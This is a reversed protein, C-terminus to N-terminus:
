AAASTEPLCGFFSSSSIRAPSPLRRRGLQLELLRGPQAVFDLHEFAEALAALQVLVLLGLHEEDVRLLAEGAQLLDELEVRRGRFM